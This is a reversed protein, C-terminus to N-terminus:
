ADYGILEILFRGAVFADAVDAEGNVLYLYEATAPLGSLPRVLGLTWAAGSTVLVRQTLGTIIDEFAGTSEPASYLDIDDLTSPVELCTMTGGLLTGSEAAVIQGIHADETGIGIIDLDTTASSLGDLILLIQTTIIGGERQVSSRYVTGVGDTIGAGAETGLIQSGEAVQWPSAAASGSAWVPRALTSDYVKKGTFKDKTNILDGADALQATTRVPYLFDSVDSPPGVYPQSLKKLDLAM